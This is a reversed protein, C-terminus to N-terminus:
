WEQQAFLLIKTQFLLKSNKSNSKRLQVEEQGIKLSAYHQGQRYSLHIERIPDSETWRLAYRPMNLQHIVINVKFCQAIAQAELHGALAGSKNMNRLNADMYEVAAQRYM